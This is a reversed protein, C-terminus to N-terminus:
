CLYYELTTTFCGSYNCYKFVGLLFVLFNQQHEYRIIIKVDTLIVVLLLLLHSDIEAWLVFHVDLYEYSKLHM